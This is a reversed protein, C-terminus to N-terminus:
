TNKRAYWVAVAALLLESWTRATNTQNPSLMFTAGYPIFCVVTVITCARLDAIIGFADRVGTHKASTNRHALSVSISFFLCLFSPTGDKLLVRIIFVIALASLIVEFGVLYALWNAPCYDPPKVKYPPSDLYLSGVNLPVFPLFVLFAFIVINIDNRLLHNKEILNVNPDSHARKALQTKRKEWLFLAHIRWAAGMVLPAVAPLVFCAMIHRVACPVNEAGLAYPFSNETDLLLVQLFFCRFHVRCVSFCVCVIGIAALLAPNRKKINDVHRFRVSLFLTTTTTCMQGIFLLWGVVNIATDSASMTLAVAGLLNLYRWRGPKRCKSM